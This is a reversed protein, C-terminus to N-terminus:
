KRIISNLNMLKIGRGGIEVSYMIGRMYVKCSGIM